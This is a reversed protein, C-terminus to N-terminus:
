FADIRQHEAKKITWSEGGCAFVPFVLSQSYLGKDVFHHRKTKNLQLHEKYIRSVLRKSTIYIAYMKKRGNNPHM